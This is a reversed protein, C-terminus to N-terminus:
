LSYQYQITIREDENNMFKGIYGFEIANNKYKFTVTPIVTFVYDGKSKASKTDVQNIIYHGGEGGNRTYSYVPEVINKQSKILGFNIGYDIIKTQHKVRGMFYGSISSSNILGLKIDFNDNISTTAGISYNEKVITNDTHYIYGFDISDANASKVGIIGIVSIVALIGVGKWFTPSLLLLIAIAFMYWIVIIGIVFSGIAIITSM